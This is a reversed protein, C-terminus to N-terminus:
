SAEEGEALPTPGQRCAGLERLLSHLSARVEHMKVGHAERPLVLIDWGPQLEEAIAFLAARVVRKFRNREVASGFKKTVIIGLRIPSEVTVSAPCPQVRVQLLADGKRRGRAHVRSFDARRRLSTYVACKRM